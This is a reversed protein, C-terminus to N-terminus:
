SELPSTSPTFSSAPATVFQQLDTSVNSSNLDEPTRDTFKAVLAEASEKNILSESGYAKPDDFKRVNVSSLRPSSGTLSSSLSVPDVPNPKSKRLSEQLAVYNREQNYQSMVFKAVKPLTARVGSTKSVTPTDYSGIEIYKAM